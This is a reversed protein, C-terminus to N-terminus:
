YLPNFLRRASTDVGLRSLFNGCALSLKSARRKGVAGIPLAEVDYSKAARNDHGLRALQIRNLRLTVHWGDATTSHVGERGIGERTKGEERGIFRSCGTGPKVSTVQEYPKDLEWVM